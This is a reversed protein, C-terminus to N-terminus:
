LESSPGDPVCRRPAAPIATFRWGRSTRPIAADIDKSPLTLTIYVDSGLRSVTIQDIPAPIRVFPALPPGKKGCGIALAACLVATARVNRMM